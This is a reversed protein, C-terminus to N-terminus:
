MRNGVPGAGRIRGTCGHGYWTKYILGKGLRDNTEDGHLGEQVLNALRAEQDKCINMRAMAPIFMQLSRSARKDLRPHTFPTVPTHKIAMSCVGTM